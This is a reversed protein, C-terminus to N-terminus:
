LFVHHISETSVLVFVNKTQTQANCSVKMLFSRIKVNSGKKDDSFIVNICRTIEKNSVTTLRRLIENPEKLKYTDSEWIYRGHPDLMKWLTIGVAWIDAQLLDISEPVPEVKLLWRASEPSVHTPTGYVQQTISTDDNSNSARGVQVATEVDIAKLTYKGFSENHVRVFNSEKIDLLAWGSKHAAIVINVLQKADPVIDTPDMGGAERLTQLYSGLDCRGYEQVMCHAEKWVSNDPLGYIAEPSLM